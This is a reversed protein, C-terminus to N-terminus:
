RLASTAWSWASLSRGPGVTDAAGGAAGVEAFRSLDISLQRHLRMRTTDWREIPTNHGHYLSGSTNSAAERWHSSKTNVLQSSRRSRSIRLPFKDSAFFQHVPLDIFAPRDTAADVEVRLTATRTIDVAFRDCPAPDNGIDCYVGGDRVSRDIDFQYIEDLQVPEYAVTPRVVVSSPTNNTTSPATSASGCSM